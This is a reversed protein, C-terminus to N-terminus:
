SLTHLTHLAHRPAVRTVNSGDAAGWLGELDYQERVGKLFLHVVVSGADVVLWESEEQLGEVGPAVGPAVEACRAKLEHLVAAALMRLLRLSRGTALVMYDAFPCRARVDVITVDDARAEALLDAVEEPAFATHFPAKALGGGRIAAHSAALAAEGPRPAAAAVAAARRRQAEVQRRSVVGPKFSDDPLPAAAAAAEEEEVLALLRAVLVDKTGRSDAGAEELQHRLEDIRLRALATKTVRATRKANSGAAAELVDLLRVKATSAGQQREHALMAEHLEPNLHAILELDPLNLMADDESDPLAEAATNGAAAPPSGGAARRWRGGDAAAAALGRSQCSAVTRALDILAANGGALVLAPAAHGAQQALLQLAGRLQALM